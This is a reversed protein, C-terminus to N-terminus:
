YYSQSSEYYGADLTLKSVNRCEKSKLEYSKSMEESPEVLELKREKKLKNLFDSDKM